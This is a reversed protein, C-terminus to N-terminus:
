DAANDYLFGDRISVPHLCLDSRLVDSGCLVLGRRCTLGSISIAGSLPRRDAPRAHTERARGVRAEAFFDRCM